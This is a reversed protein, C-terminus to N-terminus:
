AARTSRISSRTPLAPRAPSRWATAAPTSSSGPRVASPRPRAPTPASPSGGVSGLRVLRDLSYDWAFATTTSAGPFNNSYALGIPQIPGANVDGTAYRVQGDTGLLTGTNANIRHNTSNTSVVRLVDTVPNFALTLRISSSVGSLTMVGGVATAAGTTPNITYLRAQAVNNNNSAIAYLLGNSPRFEIGRVVFNTALGTITTFPTHVGPNSTDFSFLQGSETNADTIGWAIEAQMSTPAFGLWLGVLATQLLTSKRMRSCFPM